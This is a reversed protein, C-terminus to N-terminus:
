HSCKQDRASRAEDAAVEDMVEVVPVRVVPNEHEIQQRVRSADVVQRGIEVLRGAVPPDLEPVAVDAVRREHLAQDPPGVHDDVERGLRVDGSRDEVVVVEELGVHEPRLHDRVGHEPARIADLAEHV